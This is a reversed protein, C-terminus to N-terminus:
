LEKKMISVVDGGHDRREVERFGFEEYLNKAFNGEKVYLYIKTQGLTDKAYKLAENLLLNSLGKGRQAESVWLSALWPTMACGKMDSECLNVSGCVVSTRSSSSSPSSSAASSSADDDDDAADTMTVVLTIPLSTASTHERLLKAHVESESDCGDDEKCATPWLLWHASAIAAFHQPPSSDRHLLEVVSM